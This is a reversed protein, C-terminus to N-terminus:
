LIHRGRCPSPPGYKETLTEGAGPASLQTTTVTGNLSSSPNQRRQEDLDGPLQFQQCRALAICEDGCYAADTHPCEKRLRGGPGAFCRSAQIRPTPVAAPRWAGRPPAGRDQWWPGGAATTSRRGPTTRHIELSVVSLHGNAEPIGGVTQRGSGVLCIRDGECTCGSGGGAPARRQRAAPQGRQGASRARFDARDRRGSTEGDPLIERAGPVDTMVVPLGCAMAELAAVPFGEHRSALVYVDAASLERRMQARDGVYKDVGALAPFLTGSSYPGSNPATPGRASSIFACIWSPLAELHRPAVSRAPRRYRKAPLRHPLPLHSNAYESPLGLEARAQARPVPHWMEISVPNPIFALRQPAVGYDRRLERWNWWHVQRDPWRGAQNGAPGLMRDAFNTAPTGGQFSVRLPRTGDMACCRAVTAFRPTNMSRACSIPAVSLQWPLLWCAAIWQATISCTAGSLASRRPALRVRMPMALCGAAFGISALPRCGGRHGARHSSNVIREPASVESSVCVIVCEMGAARLSQAYGFLWGGSM